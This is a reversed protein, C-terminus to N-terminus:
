TSIQGGIEQAYIKKGFMADGHRAPRRVSKAVQLM